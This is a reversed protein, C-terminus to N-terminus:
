GAKKGARGGQAYGGPFVPRRPRRVIRRGEDNIQELLARNKRTAPANVVFEGKALRANIVDPGFSRARGRGPTPGGHLYKGSVSGGKKMPPMQRTPLGSLPKQVPVGVPVKRYTKQLDEGPLAQVLGGTQYGTAPKPKTKPWVPGRTPRGETRDVARPSHSPIVVRM